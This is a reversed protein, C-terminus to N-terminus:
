FLAIGGTVMEVDLFCILFSLLSVGVSFIVLVTRWLLHADYASYFSLQAFWRLGKTPFPLWQVDDM